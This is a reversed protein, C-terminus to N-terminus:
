AGVVLRLTEGSPLVLWDRWLADRTARIDALETESLVHPFELASVQLRERLQANFGDASMLVDAFTKVMARLLDPSASELHKRLLQAVNLSPEVAM